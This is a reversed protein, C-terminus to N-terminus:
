ARSDSGAHPFCSHLILLPVLKVASLSKPMQEIKIRQMYRLVHATQLPSSHLTASKESRYKENSACRFHATYKRITHTCKYQHRCMVYVQNDRALSSDHLKQEQRHKLEQKCPQHACDQGIEAGLQQPVLFDVSAYNRQTRTGRSESSLAVSASVDRQRDRNARTKQANLFTNLM